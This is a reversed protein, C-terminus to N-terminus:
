ANSEMLADLDEQTLDHDDPLLNNHELYEVSVPSPDGIPRKDTHVTELIEADFTRVHEAERKADHKDTAEVKVREVATYHFEVMYQQTELQAHDPVKEDLQQIQAKEYAMLEDFDHGHEFRRSRLIPKECEDCWLMTEPRKREADTTDGTLTQQASM